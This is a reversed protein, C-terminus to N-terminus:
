RKEPYLRALQEQSVGCAMLIHLLFWVGVMKIGALTSPFRRSSTTVASTRIYALKGCKRLRLCLEIDEMIISAKYGGMLQFQKRRIFLAADGYFISFHSRINYIWAYLSTLPTRPLFTIRFYGGLVRNDDLAMHVLSTTNSPLLTDAHLFLLVDGTAHTAGANMQNGRGRMADLWKVPLSFSAAVERTGDTSGGDVVIVEADPVAQFVNQLTAPLAKEENLTPIIISIKM